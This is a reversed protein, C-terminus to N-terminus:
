PRTCNYDTCLLLLWGDGLAERSSACQFNVLSLVGKLGEYAKNVSKLRDLRFFGGM